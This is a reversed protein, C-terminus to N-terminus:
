KLEGQNEVLISKIQYLDLQYKIIRWKNRCYLSFLVIKRTGSDIWIYSKLLM